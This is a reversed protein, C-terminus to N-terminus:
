INLTINQVKPINECINQAITNFFTNFNEAIDKMNTIKQNNIELITPMRSSNTNRHLATNLIKWTEKM